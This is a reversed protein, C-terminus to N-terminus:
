AVAPGETLGTPPSDRFGSVAETPGFRFLLWEAFLVDAMREPHRKAIVQRVRRDRYLRVCAQCPEAYLNEWRIEPDYSSAWALIREAGEVRIWRKIFDQRARQDAEALTIEEIHGARLEPIIRMGLGCCFSITADPQLTSNSFLETCGGRVALNFRNALAGEPGAHSGTAFTESGSHGGRRVLCKAGSKRDSAVKAVPQCVKSPGIPTWRCEVLSLPISPSGQRIRRFEPRSELAQRTIKQGAGAEVLLVTPLAARVAAGAARMVNDLPVFRTHQDGTSLNIEDLGAEIFQWVHREASAADVAWHANTVLRVGLGRYAARHIGELLTDGALTPEGGTFAVTRYGASAAQEIADCMWRLPLRTKERPSSLTGCNRCAATCQFTPMIALLRECAPPAFIPPVATSAGPPPSPPTLAAREALFCAIRRLDSRSLSNVPERRVLPAVQPVSAAREPEVFRVAADIIEQYVKARDLRRAQGADEAESRQQLDEQLDWAWRLFDRNRLLAYLLQDAPSASPAAEALDTEVACFLLSKM